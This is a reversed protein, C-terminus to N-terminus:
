KLKSIYTSLAKIDGDSLPKAVGTMMGKKAGGFTGKKYGTLKKTLETAKQGALVKGSIAKNKGDKGHCSACKTFLEAGSAAFCSLAFCTLLSLIKTM